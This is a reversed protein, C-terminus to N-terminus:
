WTTKGNWYPTQKVLKNNTLITSSVPWYYGQQAYREPTMASSYPFYNNRVQDFFIQGEGILEAARQQLIEALLDSGAFDTLHARRRIDDVIPLAKGPENNKVYAEALLLRVGTYRFVPINADAFYAVYENWQRSPDQSLNDFKTMWTVLSRDTATQSVDSFPENYTSPWAAFFLDARIDDPYEPYIYQKRNFPVFNIASSRDKTIDGDLPALKCTLYEIGGQDARYSEGQSASINLEFVSEVSQGAYLSRVADPGDYSALSYNGRTVLDELAAIAASIDEGYPQGDRKKLFATWMHAYGALADASGKNARIGWAASGPTGYSLMATAKSVDSLVQTMVQIDTSRATNKLSNDPTIVQSSSEISETILPAHGWICAINYYVLARLFYAEGLLSSKGGKAFLNDNMAEIHAIVLNAQAVVKYFGNWDAYSEIAGWSKQTGTITSFDGPIYFNADSGGNWGKNFMGTTMDGRNFMQANVMLGRYLSYVGLLAREADKDSKWYVENYVLDRQSPSLFSKSCSSIGLSILVPFLLIKLRRM